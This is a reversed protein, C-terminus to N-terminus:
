PTVGGKALTNHERLLAAALDLGQAIHEHQLAYNLTPAARKVDRCERAAVECQVARREREAQIAAERERQGQEVEALLRPLHTIAACIPAVISGVRQAAEPAGHKATWDRVMSRIRFDLDVACLARHGNHARILANSEARTYLGAEFIDASYGCSNPGWWLKHEEDWIIWWDGALLPQPQGEPTADALLRRLHSVVSALPDTTTMTM